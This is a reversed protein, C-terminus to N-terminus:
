ERKHDNVNIIREYSGRMCKLGNGNGCGGVNIDVSGGGLVDYVALYM